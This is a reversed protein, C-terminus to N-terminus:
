KESPYINFSLPQARKHIWRMTALVFLLSVVAAWWPMKFDQMLDFPSLGREYLFQGVVQAANNVFHAAVPVWLNQSRWFLWGLLIGLLMRPLFGEFQFHVFSFIASTLVIALWPSAIRRLLQQQVVGRFVLEEGVAPLLAILSVNALLELSNDMQLLAKITDEAQKEMGILSEPLPLAQNVNYFFLVLPVAALMLVIGALVLPWDPRRDALLYGLTHRNPPYFHRTVLWGALLFTTIHGIALFLRMQWREVPPADPALSGSMVSDGWGSLMALGQFVAAGLMALLLSVLILGFLVVWVQPERQYM